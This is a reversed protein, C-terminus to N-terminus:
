GDNNRTRGSASGGCKFIQLGGFGGCALHGNDRAASDIRRVDGGNQFDGITEDDACREFAVSHRGIRNVGLAYLSEHLGNTTYSLALSLGLCSSSHTRQHERCGYHCDNDRNISLSLRLGVVHLNREVVPSHRCRVRKRVVRCETGAICQPVAPLSRVFEPADVHCGTLKTLEIKGSAVTWVPQNRIAVAVDPVRCVRRTRNRSEIWLCALYGFVFHGVGSRVIGMRWDKRLISRYPERDLAAVEDALEV